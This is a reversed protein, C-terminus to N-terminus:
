GGTSFTPTEIDFMNTVGENWQQRVGLTWVSYCIEWFHSISQFIQFIYTQTYICVCMNGIQKQATINFGFWIRMAMFPLFKKYVKQLPDHLIIVVALSQISYGQLNREATELLPSSGQLLKVLQTKLLLVLFQSPWYVTGVLLLVMCM